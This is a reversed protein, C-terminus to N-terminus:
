GPPGHDPEPDHAERGVHDILARARHGPRQQGGETGRGRQHPQDRTGALCSGQHQPQHEARQSVPGPVVPVEGQPAVSERRDAHRQQRHRREDTSGSEGEGAGQDEGFAGTLRHAARRLRGQERPDRSLDPQPTSEGDVLRQVLDTGEDSRQQHGSDDRHGSVQLGTEMSRWRQLVGDPLALIESDVVSTAADVRAQLAAVRAVAAQHPPQTADQANRLYAFTSVRMLRAGLAEADTLCALLTVADAGLHGEYAALAQRAADVAEFEAEWAAEDPFLDCLDWTTEVPVEARSPLSPM